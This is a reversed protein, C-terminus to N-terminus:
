EHKYTLISFNPLNESKPMMTDDTYKITIEDEFCLSFELFIKIPDFLKEKQKFVICKKIEDILKKEENSNCNFNFLKEIAYSAKIKNETFIDNIINSIKIVDDSIDNSNELMYFKNDKNKQTMYFCDELKVDAGYYNYLKKLLPILYETYIFVDLRQIKIGEESNKKAYITIKQM